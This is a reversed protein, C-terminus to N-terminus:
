DEVEDFLPGEGRDGLIYQVAENELDALLDTAEPPLNNTSEKNAADFLLTPPAKIEMDGGMKTPRTFTIQIGKPIWKVSKVSVKQAWEKPVGCILTCYSQFKSWVHIFSETPPGSVLKIKDNSEDWHSYNVTLGKAGSYEIKKFTYDPHRPTVPETKAM